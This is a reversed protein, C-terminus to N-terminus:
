KIGTLWLWDKEVSGEWEMFGARRFEKGFDDVSSFVHGDYKGTGNDGCITQIRCVGGRRLIRYAERLNSQITELEEMHQFCTLSYVFDFAGDQFPISKGDNLVVRCNWHHRLYHTSRAVLSVSSDVGSCYSFRSKAELLLRGVGAGIELCHAGRQRDFITLAQDKTEQDDPRDQAIVRRWIEKDDWPDMEWHEKIAM